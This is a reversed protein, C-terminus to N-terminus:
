NLEIDLNDLSNHHYLYWIYSFLTQLIETLEAFYYQKQQLISEKKRPCLSFFVYVIQALLSNPVDEHGVIKGIVVAFICLSSKLFM